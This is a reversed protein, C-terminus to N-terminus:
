HARRHSLGAGHREPIWELEDSIPLETHDAHVAERSRGVLQAEETFREGTGTEADVSQTQGAVTRVYLIEVRRGPVVPRAGDLVREVRHTRPVALDAHDALREAPQEREVERRLAGLDGRDRRERRRQPEF